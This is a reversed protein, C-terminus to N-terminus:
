QPGLSSSALSAISMPWWSNVRRRSPRSKRAGMPSLGCFTISIPVPVPIQAMSKASWNGEASTIPVSREGVWGDNTGGLKRKSSSSACSAPREVLVCKVKYVDAAEEPGNGIPGLKIAIREACYFRTTPNLLALDIDLYNRVIPGNVFVM